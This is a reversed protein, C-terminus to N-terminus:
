KKIIEYPSIYYMGVKYDAYTVPKLQFYIKVSDDGKVTYWQYKVKKSFNADTIRYEQGKKVSINDLAINEPSIEIFAGYDGIVIREYKRCIMIGQPSYLSTNEGDIKLWTPIASKYVNQYHASLEYPLPKYKYTTALDDQLQRIDKPRVIDADTNQFLSYQYMM